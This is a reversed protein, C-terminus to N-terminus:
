LGELGLCADFGFRRGDSDESFWVAPQEETPIVSLFRVSNKDRSSTLFQLLPRDIRFLPVFSRSALHLDM